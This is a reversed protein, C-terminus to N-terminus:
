SMQSSLKIYLNDHKHPKSLFLLDSSKSVGEM